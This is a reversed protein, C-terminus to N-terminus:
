CNNVLHYPSNVKLLSVTVAYPGTQHGQAAFDCCQCLRVERTTSHRSALTKGPDSPTAPAIFIEYGMVEAPGRWTAFSKQYDAVRRPSKTGLVEPRMFARAPLARAVASWCSSAGRDRRLSFV